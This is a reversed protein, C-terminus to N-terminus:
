EISQDRWINSFVYYIVFTINYYSHIITCTILSRYKIYFATTCISLISIGGIYVYSIFYHFNYSYIHALIFLVSQFFFSWHKNFLKLFINLLLGRFYFEESIPSLVCLTIAPSIISFLFKFNISVKGELYPTLNIINNSITGNSFIWWM